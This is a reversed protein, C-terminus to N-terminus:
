NLSHGIRFSDLFLNQSIFTRNNPTRPSKGVWLFSRRIHSGRLKATGATKCTTTFGLWAVRFPSTPPELGGLGVMLGGIIVRRNESKEKV